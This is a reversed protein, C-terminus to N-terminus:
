QACNIEAFASFLCPPGRLLGVGRRKRWTTAGERGLGKELPGGGDFQTFNDVPTVIIFEFPDGAADM